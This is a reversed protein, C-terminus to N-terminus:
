VARLMTVRPWSDLGRATEQGRIDAVGAPIETHDLVRFGLRRYYPANWPVSAFTTLILGPLEHREAWRQAEDILERGLGQRAHSPHVSVQEIHAYGDLEAVLLYAVPRDHQDAVVLAREDQQFVGLESLTPPEDDAVADMGLARFPAGAAREVERLVPLDDLRAQRIVLDAGTGSAAGGIRTLLRQSVVVDHPLGALEAADVVVGQRHLIERLMERHDAEAEEYSMGEPPEDPGVVARATDEIDRVSTTAWIDPLDVPRDDEGTRM